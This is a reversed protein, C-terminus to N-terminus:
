YEDLHTFEAQELWQSPRDYFEIMSNVLSYHAQEEKKLLLCLERLESEEAEKAERDYLDISKEEIKLADELTGIMSTRNATFVAGTRAMEEFVTRVDKLFSTYQVGSLGEKLSRILDGHRREERSLLMLLAQANPDPCSAAKERYYVEGEEEMKIGFDFVNLSM